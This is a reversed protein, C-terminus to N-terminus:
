DKKEEGHQERHSQPEAAVPQYLFPHLYLFYLDPLLLVSSVAAKMMALEYFFVAVVRIKQLTMMRQKRKTLWLALDKRRIM